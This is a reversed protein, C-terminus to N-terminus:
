IRLDYSLTDHTWTITAWFFTRELDQLLLFVQRADDHGPNVLNTRLVRVRSRRAEDEVLHLFRHQLHDLYMAASIEGNANRPCNPYHAQVPSEKLHEELMDVKTFVLIFYTNKFWRSNVISNCPVLQEEMRNVWGEKELLFSDYGLTDVTFM